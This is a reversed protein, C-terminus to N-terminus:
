NKKVKVEQPNFRRSYQEQYVENDVAAIQERQLPSM